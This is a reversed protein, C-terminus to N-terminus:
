IGNLFWGKLEEAKEENEAIICPVCYKFGTKWPSFNVRSKGTRFSYMVHSFDTNTCDYSIFERVDDEYDEFRGKIWYAEDSNDVRFWCDEGKPIDKHTFEKIRMCGEPPWTTLTTGERTKYTCLTDTGNNINLILKEELLSESALECPWGIQARYNPNVYKLKLYGKEFITEM